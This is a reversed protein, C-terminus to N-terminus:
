ISCHRCFCSAVSSLITGVKIEGSHRPSSITSNSDENDKDDSPLTSPYENEQYGKNTHGSHNPKLPKDESLTPGEGNLRNQIAAEYAPPSIREEFAPPVSTESSRDQTSPPPTKPILPRHLPPKPSPPGKKGHSPSGPAPPEQKRFSPADADTQIRPVPCEDKNEVVEPTVIGNCKPKPQDQTLDLSMQKQVLPHDMFPKQQLVVKHNSRNQPGNNLDTSDKKGDSPSLSM